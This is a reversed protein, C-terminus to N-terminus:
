SAEAITNKVIEYAEPCAEADNIPGKGPESKFNIIETHTCGKISYHEAGALKTSDLSVIIDSNAFYRRQQERMANTLVPLDFLLTSNDLSYTGISVIKERYGADAADLQQLFESDPMMQEVELERGTFLHLIILIIESRTFDNFGYHPTALTIVKKVNGSGSEVMYQRSVLGGMSHALIIVHDSDTCELVLDVAHELEKAYDEIGHNKNQETYYEASVSVAEPWREPCVSENTKSDVIGKYDAIGDEDMKVAYDSFDVARGMWGHVLIIPYASSFGEESINTTNNVTPIAEEQRKMTVLLMMLILAAILIIQFIKKKKM